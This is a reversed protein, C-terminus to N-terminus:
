RLLQNIRSEAKAKARALYSDIKSMAYLEASALVDRSEKAEVYEAYNMAAVVVLAYTSSYLKALETVYENGRASGEQGGNVSVFASRMKELGQEYIAYGISSRLNGTIDNWDKPHPNRVMTVCEEGLFKLTREFEEKLISNISEMLDKFQTHPSISAM